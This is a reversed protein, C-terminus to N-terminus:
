AHQKAGKRGGPVFALAAMTLGLYLMQLNRSMREVTVRLHLLGGGNNAPQGELVLTGTGEARLTLTAKGKIVAPEPNLQLASKARKGKLKLEETWVTQGDDLTGTLTMESADAASVIVVSVRTMKDFDTDVPVTLVEGAALTVSQEEDNLDAMDSVGTPVLAYLLICAVGIVVSLIRLIKEM